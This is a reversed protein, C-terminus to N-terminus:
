NTYTYSSYSSGYAQYNVASGAASNGYGNGSTAGASYGYTASGGVAGSGSFGGQAQFSTQVTGGAAYGFGSSAGYQSSVGNGYQGSTAQSGGQITVSSGYGAGASYTPQPQHTDHAFALSSSITVAAMLAAAVLTKLLNKM